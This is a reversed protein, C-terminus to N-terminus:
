SHQSIWSKNYAPKEHLLDANNKRKRAAWSALVSRVLHVMSDERHPISFFVPSRVPNHLVGPAPQPAHIPLSAGASGAGGRGARVQHFPLGTRAPCDM